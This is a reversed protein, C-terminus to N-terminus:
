FRFNKKKNFNKTGPLFYKLFFFYKISVVIPFDLFIEFILTEFFGSKQYAARKKRIYAIVM